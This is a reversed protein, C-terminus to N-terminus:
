QSLSTVGGESAPDIYVDINNSWREQMGEVGSRGPRSREHMAREEWVVRM